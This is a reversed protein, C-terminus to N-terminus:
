LTFYSLWHPRVVFHTVSANAQFYLINHWCINQQEVGGGYGGVCCFIRGMVFEQKCKTCGWISAVWVSISKCDPPQDRASTVKIVFIKCRNGGLALAIDSDVYNRRTTRQAHQCVYLSWIVPCSELSLIEKDLRKGQAMKLYTTLM